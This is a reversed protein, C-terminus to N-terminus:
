DEREDTEPKIAKKVRYEERYNEVDWNPVSSAEQDRPIKIDLQSELKKFKAETKYLTGMIDTDNSLNGWFRRIKEKYETSMKSYLGQKFNKYDEKYKEPVDFVYMVHYPDADYTNYFNPRELMDNEFAIYALDGSFKYLVFIKDELEPVQEDGIFCNRYNCKPFGKTMFEDLSEGIMPLIYTESKNPDGIKWSM